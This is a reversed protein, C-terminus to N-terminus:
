VHLVKETVEVLNSTLSIAQINELVYGLGSKKKKAFACSKCSELVEPDMHIELRLESNDLYCNDPYCNCVPKIM